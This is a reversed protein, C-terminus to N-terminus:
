SPPGWSFPHWSLASSSRGTLVQGPSPCNGRSVQDESRGLSLGQSSCPGPSYGVAPQCPTPGSRSGLTWTREASSSRPIQTWDSIFASFPLAPLTDWFLAEAHGTFLNVGLGGALSAPSLTIMNKGFNLATWEQQPPVLAGPPMEARKRAPLLAVGLVAFAASLRKFVTM